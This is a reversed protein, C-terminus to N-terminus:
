EEDQEEAKVLLVSIPTAFRGLAPGFLSKGSKFLCKREPSSPHDTLFDARLFSESV